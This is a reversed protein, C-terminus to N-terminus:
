PSRLSYEAASVSPQSQHCIILIRSELEYYQFRVYVYLVIIMGIGEISITDRIRNNKRSWGIDVHSYLHSKVVRQSKRRSSM